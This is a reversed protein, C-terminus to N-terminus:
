GFVEWDEVALPVDDGANESHIMGIKRLVVALPNEAQYIEWLDQSRLGLMTSDAM